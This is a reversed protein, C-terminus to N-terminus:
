KQLTTKKQKQITKKQKIIMKKTSTTTDKKTEEKTTQPNIQNPYKVNGVTNNYSSELTIGNNVDDILKKAEKISDENPITVYLKQTNYSYTYDM